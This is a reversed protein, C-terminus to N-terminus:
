SSILMLLLPVSLNQSVNAAKMDHYSWLFVLATPRKNGLQISCVFNVIQRWIV